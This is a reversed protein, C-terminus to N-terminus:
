RTKPRGSNLVSSVANSAIDLSKKVGYLYGYIKDVDCELSDSCLYLDGYFRMRGAEDCIEVLENRWAVELVNEDWVQWGTLLRATDACAGNLFKVTTTARYRQQLSHVGHLTPGVFGLDDMEQDSTERGHLLILDM